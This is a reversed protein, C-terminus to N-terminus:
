PTAEMREAVFLKPIADRLIAEDGPTIDFAAEGLWLCPGARLASDVRCNTWRECAYAMMRFVIDSGPGYVIATIDKGSASLQVVLRRPLDPSPHLTVSVQRPPEVNM